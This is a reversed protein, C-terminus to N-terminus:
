CSCGESLHTEISVIELIRRKTVYRRQLAYGHLTGWPMGYWTDVFREHEPLATIYAYTHHRQHLRCHVGLVRMLKSRLVATLIHRTLGRCRQKVQIVHDRPGLSEDLVARGEHLFRSALRPATPVLWPRAGTVSLGLRNAVKRRIM